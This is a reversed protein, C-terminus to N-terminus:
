LLQAEELDARLVTVQEDTAAILPLRMTRSPLRGSLELAAKAMIAGQTRMMMGRVAPLLQNHTAQATILDGAEVAALMRRYHGAALHGVVSVVGSAGLALWALNLEDSGSYYALDTRSLVWTGEFLDNKADKVAVIQPHASLTILSEASIPVGSRSPIDYLMVPLDTASAVAQFHAVLGPQPPKSYYPTVVLLGDAGAKAAQQALEVTHATDNSGVGALVTARHGAADVVARLLADKEADSTTPSEGTTGSVVLGDCGDEVLQSALQGAAECDLGGAATFPTIMAVLVSGFPRLVPETPM